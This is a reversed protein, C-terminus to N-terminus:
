IKETNKNFVIMLSIVSALAMILYTIATALAAGIYDFQPILIVNLVFNVIVCSFVMYAVIKQKGGSNLATINFSAISFFVMGAWLITVAPSVAIFKEDFLIRVIDTSFYVGLLIFVPLTLLMLLSGIYCTRRIGAYDNKQWMEAVFPTFIMPFVFFGQAIQMIPLAINYMAVSELGKLWTLCQTDMYYMISIGATSVAIWSSLSFIKKFDDLKVTKLPLLNIGYNKIIRFAFITIIVSAGVFCIITSKIGYSQLLFFIGALTIFTKINLLISRTIFAKRAPLVCMFSSELSQAPILLFILMLLAPSGPYEFYNRALYPALSEMIIFAILALMAKTIFTLTFVKKAEQLDNKAFSKALLITVSKGLGFDLFVMIIMVLSFASYFFGYDIESLNLALTRRILYNMIGLIGIGTMSAASSHIFSKLNAKNM